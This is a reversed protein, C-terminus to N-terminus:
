KQNIKISFLPTGASVEDGKQVMLKPKVGRFKFPMLAVKKPNLSIIRETGPIGSLRIDHGKKINIHNM